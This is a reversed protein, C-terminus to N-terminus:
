RWIAEGLEAKKVDWEPKSLVAIRNMAILRALAGNRREQYRTLQGPHAHVILDAGGQVYALARTRGAPSMVTLVKAAGHTIGHLGYLTM